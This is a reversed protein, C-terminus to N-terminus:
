SFLNKFFNSVKRNEKKAKEIITRLISYNRNEM